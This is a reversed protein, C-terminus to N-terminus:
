KFTKQPQIKLPDKQTNRKILNEDATSAKGTSDQASPRKDMQRIEEGVSGAESISRVTETNKLEDVFSNYEEIQTRQFVAMKKLKQLSEKSLPRIAEKSIDGKETLTIEGKRDLVIQQGKKNTLEIAGDFLAYNAENKSKVDIIFSTGRVAAVSTPTSIKFDTDQRMKKLFVATSGKTQDFEAGSADMRKVGFEANESIRVIGQDRVFLEAMSDTGTRVTQGAMITQGASAPHTSGGEVIIVEGKTLTLRAVPNADGTKQVQDSKKCQSMVLSFVAILILILVQRFRCQIFM